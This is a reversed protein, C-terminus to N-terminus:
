ASQPQPELPPKESVEGAINDNLQALLNKLPDAFALAAQYARQSPTQAISLEDQARQIKTIAQKARRHVARFSRDDHASIIRDPVVQKASM